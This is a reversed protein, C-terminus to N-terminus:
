GDALLLGEPMRITGGVSSVATTVGISVTVVGDGEPNGTHSLRLESVAKRVLEAVSTAGGSDTEPLIVAIEEGGYRAVFDRPRRVASSVAAAVARLCEDFLRVGILAGHEQTLIFARFV